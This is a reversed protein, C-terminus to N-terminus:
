AVVAQGDYRNIIRYIAQVKDSYRRDVEGLDQCRWLAFSPWGPSRNLAVAVADPGANGETQLMYGAAIRAESTNKHKRRSRLEKLSVGFTTCIANLIHDTRTMYNFQLRGIVGKRTRGMLSVGM